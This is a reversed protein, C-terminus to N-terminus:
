VPSALRHDLGDETLGLVVAAHSAKVSAASTRDPGFPPEDRGGVVQQLKVSVTECGGSRCCRREDVVRASSVTGRRRRGSVRGPSVRCGRASASAEIPVRPTRSPGPFRRVGTPEGVRLCVVTARYERPSCLRRSEACSSRDRLLLRERVAVRARASPRALVTIPRTAASMDESSAQPTQPAHDASLVRGGRVTPGRFAARCSPRSPSRRARTSM